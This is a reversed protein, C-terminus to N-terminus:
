ASTQKILAVAYSAIGEGRGTFGMRDTTTAKISLTKGSLGTVQALSDKIAPVHPTIKPSECVITCDINEIAYGESKLKKMVENLFSLSSMDKYRADSDPFHTGIDGEGMAGLLADCIAHTLVDADSHGALGLRFPIELGGLVLKRGESFQHADFGFGTRYM